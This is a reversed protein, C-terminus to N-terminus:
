PRVVVRYSKLSVTPDLPDELTLKQVGGSTNKVTRLSTWVGSKLNATSQVEYTQGAAANWEVRFYPPTSQVLEARSFVVLDFPSSDLGNVVGDGDSDLTMSERLAKPVQVTSGDGLVVTVMPINEGLGSGDPVWRLTGGDATVYGDLSAPD